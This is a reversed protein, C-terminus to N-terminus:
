GQPQALAQALTQRQAPSLGLRALSRPTERTSVQRLVAKEGHLTPLTSLRFSHTQESLPIRLQGDQPLRREAIDLGALVKLRTM